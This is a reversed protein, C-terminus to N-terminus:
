VLNKLIIHQIFAIKVINKSKCRGIQNNLRNIGCNHPCITCKELLKVDM